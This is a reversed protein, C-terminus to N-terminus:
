RVFLRTAYDLLTLADVDGTACMASRAGDPWRWYRILPGTSAEIHEILEVQSTLRAITAASLHTGCRSATEGCDLIYGQERLFSVVQKPADPPLGVFPRPDAPVQLVRTRLQCYEGDWVDQSACHDLGRSLITARQSCTFAVHLGTPTDSVAVAFESKERWWRSIDQLRAIWVPPRLSTAQRLVAIIPQQCHQALEPHFLLVFLEGRRHTLHLVQSWARAIGDPGLHLGDHLELDDPLCVPIEIMKSRTWPVCVADRAPTPRYLRDLVGLDPVTNHADALSDVEWWCIARNSSYDFVGEPLTDLLDDPCSLYPCRLGHVQVGHRSFVEAARVLRESAEDPPYVRLNVHDYGHVAIEAGLDQLHRFVQPYRELVRGPTALTPSCDYEALAAIFDEIRNAARAPTAGYRHLLAAARRRVYAPGRM